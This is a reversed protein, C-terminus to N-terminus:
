RRKPVVKMEMQRIIDSAEEYDMAAGIPQFSFNKIAGLEFLERIRTELDNGEETTGEFLMFTPYEKRSREQIVVIWKRNM